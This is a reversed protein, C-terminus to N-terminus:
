FDQTQKEDDEQLVLLSIILILIGLIISLIWSLIGLPSTKIKIIAAGAIGLMLIFLYDRKKMKDQKLIEKPPLLISLVGLLIVAGIVWNLNINIHEIYWLSSIQNILLFILFVVLVLQFTYSLIRKQIERNKIFDKIKEAFGASYDAYRHFQYERKKGKSLDQIEEVVAKVVERYQRDMKDLRQNFYEKLDENKEEQKKQVIGQVPLPKIKFEELKIDQEEAQIVKPEEKKFQRLSSRIQERLQKISETKERERIKAEVDEQLKKLDNLKKKLEEEQMQSVIKSPKPEEKDQSDYAYKDLDEESEM